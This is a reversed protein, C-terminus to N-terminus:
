GTARRQQESYGINMLTSAPQPRGLHYGQLTDCGLAELRRQADESEVGEAVVELGLNHGLDIATRVIAADGADDAMQQIFSKDIKLVDIPLKRLYGLSAHGSGFDDVALRVGLKSLQALVARARPPNTMITTETIELELQAPKIRWKSLLKTVEDPFRLDVLERGTINVAVRVEQGEARWAHCQGLAADLVYHTLARILGTQEALPIFQDPGLLGHEPHQWRVLAEVKHVEGTAVDAQPQYHVVLENGELAQRLEGHLALRALSHHDYAAAYVIPTHTTKSVYMSVDAHRTLTEVDEGHDPYIAIGVSAEVEITLGGVVVPEALEERLKDAFARATAGDSLGPAVVGFEDGGLRAVTDSERLARRLRGAIERLLLDGSPHGLTDNVEKFRDLDILMVAFGAGDRKAILLAQEARDGFLTRNPLDTLADHLAQYEIRQLQRQLQDQSRQLVEEHRKRESIDIMYGQAYLPAGTADRVVVAADHIWIERGDRAILRYECEHQEGSEHMSAFGSLVRDRDDPHLVSAFFSPDAVWEEPTHGALEAIQPSIYLASEEDLGEVYSVLPLREVLTRYRGEVQRLREDAEKRDTIDRAVGIMRMPQGAEDPAVEGAVTRWRIQGDPLVIRFEIEFSGRTAAAEGVTQRVRDLDDAHVLDLFSQFTGGFSEPVVGDLAELERSWGVEGTEVNWEWTSMRAVQLALQMRRERALVVRNARALKQSSRPFNM